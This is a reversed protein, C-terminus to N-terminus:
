KCMRQPSKLNIIKPNLCQVFCFGQPFGLITFAAVKELPAAKSLKPRETYSVNSACVMPARRNTMPRQRLAAAPTFCRPSTLNVSVQHGSSHYIIISYHKPFFDRLLNPQLLLNVDQYNSTKKKSEPLENHNQLQPPLNFHWQCYQLLSSDLVSGRKM